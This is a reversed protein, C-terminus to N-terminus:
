LNKEGGPLQWMDEHAVCSVPGIGNGYTTGPFHCRTQDRLQLLQLSILHLYEVQDLANPGRVEGRRQSLTAEDYLIAAGM